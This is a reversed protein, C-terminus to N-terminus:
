TRSGRFAIIVTVKHENHNPPKSDPSIHKDLLHSTAIFGQTAADHGLITHVTTAKLIDTEALEPDIKVAGLPEFDFSSWLMTLRWMSVLPLYKTSQLNEQAGQLWEMIWQQSFDPNPSQQLQDHFLANIHDVHRKHLSINHCLVDTFLLWLVFM